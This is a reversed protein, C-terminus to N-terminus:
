WITCVHAAQTHISMLQQSSVMSILKIFTNDDDFVRIMSSSMCLIVIGSSSVCKALASLGSHFRPKLPIATLEVVKNDVRGVTQAHTETPVQNPFEM